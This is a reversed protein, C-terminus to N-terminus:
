NFIPHANKVKEFGYCYGFFLIPIAPSFVDHSSSTVYGSWLSNLATWGWLTYGRGIFNNLLVFQGFVNLLYLLKIFLYLMSVYSGLSRGLRFCLVRRPTPRRCNMELCETVYASLKKIEGQRDNLTMSRLKRADEIATGLDIGSQQHLTKWIWNPLFFM